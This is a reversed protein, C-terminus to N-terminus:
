QSVTIQVKLWKAVRMQRPGFVSVEAKLGTKLDSFIGDVNTKKLLSKDLWIKTRDTVEFEQVGSDVKLIFTRARENVSMITGVGKYKGALEPYAGVPIYKETMEHGHGAYPCFLIATLALFAIRNSM